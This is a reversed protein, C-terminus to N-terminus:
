PMLIKPWLDNREIDLIKQYLEKEENSLAIPFVINVKLRLSGTKGEFCIGGSEKHITSNNQIGPPIKV